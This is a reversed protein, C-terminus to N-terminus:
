CQCSSRRETALERWSGGERSAREEKGLNWFSVDISTTAM